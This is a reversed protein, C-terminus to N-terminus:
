YKEEGIDIGGKNVYRHVGRVLFKKDPPIANPKM